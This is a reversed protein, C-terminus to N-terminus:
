RRVEPTYKFVAVDPTIKPTLMVSLYVFPNKFYEPQWPPPPHVSGRMGRETEKSACAAPRDLRVRWGEAVSSDLRPGQGVSKKGFRDIKVIGDFGGSDYEGM